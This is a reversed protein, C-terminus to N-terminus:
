FPLLTVSADVSVTGGAWVITEQPFGPGATTITRTYYLEVKVYVNDSDFWSFVNFTFYRNNPNNFVSSSTSANKGSIPTDQTYYDSLAGRVNYVSTTYSADPILFVGGSYEVLVQAVGNNKSIPTSSQHEYIKFATPPSSNPFTQSYPPISFSFSTDQFKIIAPLSSMLITKSTDIKTM